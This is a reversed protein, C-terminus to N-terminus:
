LMAGGLSADVMEHKTVTTLFIFAIEVAALALYGQRLRVRGKKRTGM